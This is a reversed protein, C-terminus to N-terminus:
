FVKNPDNNEYDRVINHNIHFPKGTDTYEYFSCTLMKGVFLYPTLMMTEKYDASETPTVNFEVGDKTICVYLGFEPNEEQAKIGIIQFEEQILRKLKLMNVTRKGFQYEASPVRLIIGEYGQEIFEDCKAQVHTDNILKFTRVFKVPSNLVFQNTAVNFCEHLKQKLMSYRVMNSHKPVAIDYVEYTVMPTEFNPKVVASRIHQLLMNHIYLEGDYIIPDGNIDTFLDLRDEFWKIIHEVKYFEGEKSKMKVDGEHLYVLCRVGNIKPQGYIPFKASTFGKEKPEYPNNLYYYMRDKHISGDPATWDKKKRFYQAALMPKLMGDLDTADDPLANLIADYTEQEDLMSLTFDDINLDALTKYGYKRQGIILSKMQLNAQDLLSTENAKGVNKQEVKKDHRTKKGNAEGAEIELNVKSYSTVIKVEWTLLKGKANKKYLKTEM